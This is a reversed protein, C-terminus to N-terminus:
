ALIAGAKDECATVVAAASAADTENLVGAALAEEADDGVESKTCDIAPATRM